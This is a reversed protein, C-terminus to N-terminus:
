GSDTIAAEAPPWALPLAPPWSIVANRDLTGRTQPAFEMKGLFLTAISLCPTGRESPCM